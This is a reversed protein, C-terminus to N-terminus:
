LSLSSPHLSTSCLAIPRRPGAAQASSGVDFQLRVDMADAMEHTYCLEVGPTGDGVPSLEVWEFEALPAQEHSVDLLRIRVCGKKGADTGGNFRIFYTDGSLLHLVDHPNAPIAARRM